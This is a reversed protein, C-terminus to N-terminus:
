SSMSNFEQELQARSSHYESGTTSLDEMKNIMGKARMFNENGYEANKIIYIFQNFDFWNTDDTTLDFHKKIDNAKQKMIM